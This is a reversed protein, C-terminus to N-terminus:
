AVYGVFVSPVAYGVSTGEWSGVQMNLEGATTMYMGATTSLALASAVTVAPIVKVSKASAISVAGACVQYLQDMNATSNAGTCMLTIGTVLAGKPIYVGSTLSQAVSSATISFSAVAVRPELFANNTNPM